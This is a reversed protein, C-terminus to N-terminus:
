LNYGILLPFYKPHINKFLPKINGPTPCSTRVPPLNNPVSSGPSFLTGRSSWGAPRFWEWVRGIQETDPEEHKTWTDIHGVPNKYNRYSKLAKLDLKLTGAEAMGLSTSQSDTCFLTQTESHTTVDHWSDHFGEVQLEPLWQKLLASSTEKVFFLCVSTPSAIRDDLLCLFFMFSQSIGSAVDNTVLRENRPWSWQAYGFHSM